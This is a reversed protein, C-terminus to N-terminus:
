QKRSCALRDALALAGYRDLKPCDEAVRDALKPANHKGKRRVWQGYHCRLFGVGDCKIIANEAAYALMQVNQM